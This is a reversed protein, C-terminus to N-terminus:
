ILAATSDHLPPLPDDFVREITKQQATARRKLHELRKKAPKAVTSNDPIAKKLFVCLQTRFVKIIRM